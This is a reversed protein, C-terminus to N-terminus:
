ASGSGYSRASAALVSARGQGHRGGTGLGVARDGTRGRGGLGWWVLTWSSISISVRLSQVSKGTGSEIDIRSWVRAM